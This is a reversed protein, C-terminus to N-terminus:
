RDDVDIVAANADDPGAYEGFGVELSQGAKHDNENAGAVRAAARHGLHHEFLPEGVTETARSALEVIETYENHRGTDGSRGTRSGRRFRNLGHLIAAEIERM